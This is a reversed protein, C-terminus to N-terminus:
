RDQGPYLWPYALRTIWPMVLWAMAAVVVPTTIPIRVYFPLDGLLPAALLEIAVLLPLLGVTTLVAQKWRPPPGTPTPRGSLTFWTELGSQEQWAGTDVTLDELKAIWDRRTASRKWSRLSPYDRFRLVLVHEPGSHHQGPPLATVGLFGEHDALLRAAEHIWADYDREYGPRVLRSIVVTVPEDAPLEDPNPVEEPAGPLRAFEGTTVEDEPEEPDTASADSGTTM